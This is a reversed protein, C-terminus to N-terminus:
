ASSDDVFGHTWPHPRLQAHACAASADVARRHLRGVDVALLRSDGVSFSDIGARFGQAVDDGGDRM